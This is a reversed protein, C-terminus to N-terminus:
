SVNYLSRALFYSYVLAGDSNLSKGQALLSITLASKPNFHNLFFPEITIKFSIEKIFPPLGWDVPSAPFLAEFMLM